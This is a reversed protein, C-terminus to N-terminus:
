KNKLSRYTPRYLDKFNDINSNKIRNFICKNSLNYINLSNKTLESITYLKGDIKFKKSKEKRIDKFLEKFTINPNRLLRSRLTTKSLNNVNLYHSNLSTLTFYTSGFKYLIAYKNNLNIHKNNNNKKIYRSNLPSFLKHLTINPQRYIRNALQSKNLKELNLPHKCLEEITFYSNEVRYKKESKTKIKDNNNFILNTSLFPKNM